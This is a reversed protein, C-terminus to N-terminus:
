LTEIYEALHDIDLDSLLSAQSWMMSSQRGIKEGNKYAVLRDRIYSATQGQLAPGLGGEGNGGHCAVCGAYKAEGPLAPTSAQAVQPAGSCPEGEVCVKSFSKIRLLVADMEVDSLKQKPPTVRTGFVNNPDCASVLSLALILTMLRLM